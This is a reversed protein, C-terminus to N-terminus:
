SGGLRKKFELLPALRPDVEESRCGCQIRNRSAGCTPCLGACEPRCVPKLPLNLWIQETAIADLRAQGDEAYYLLADREEIEREGVGYDIAEQVLILEFDVRIKTELPELCRSCQLRVTANLKGRFDVGLDGRDAWGAIRANLVVVPEGVEQSLEGLALSENFEVGGPGLETIDISKIGM